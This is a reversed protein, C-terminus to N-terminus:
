HQLKMRRVLFSPHPNPQLGVGCCIPQQRSRQQEDLAPRATTHSGPLAAAKHLDPASCTGDQAAKLEQSAAPPEQCASFVEFGGECSSSATSNLWIVCRMGEGTCGACHAGQQIHVRSFTVVSEPGPGPLLLPVVQHCPHPCCEEALQGERTLMFRIFVTVDQNLLSRM